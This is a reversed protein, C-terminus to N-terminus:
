VRREFFLDPAWVALNLDRARMEEKGNNKRLDLFDFIDPHWPELYIAASGKRKGGGQDVYRMTENFVKLMPIIGNSIGGTGYVPSGKSRVEHIHIGIGGASQSIM